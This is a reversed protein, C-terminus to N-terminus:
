AVELVIDRRRVADTWWENALERAESETRVMTQLENFAFKRLGDSKVTGRQRKVTFGSGVIGAIWISASTHPIHHTAFLETTM